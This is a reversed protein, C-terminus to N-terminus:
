ECLEGENEGDPDHLRAAHVTFLVRVAISWTGHTGRRGSLTFHGAAHVDSLAPALDPAFAAVKAPVTTQPASSGIGGSRRSTAGDPIVLRVGRAKEVGACQREIQSPNANLRRSM